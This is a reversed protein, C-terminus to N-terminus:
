VVCVDGLVITQSVAGRETDCLLAVGNGDGYRLLCSEDGDCLTALEDLLSGVLLLEFAVEGADHLCFLGDLADLFDLIDLADLLDEGALIDFKM